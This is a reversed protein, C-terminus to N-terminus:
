RLLGLGTAEAALADRHDPHAVGLLARIREAITRGFLSAIGWETVVYHVDARTTVVGSGQALTPVIRSLTGGKATSPLVIIPRGGASAASGRIFDAQGGFGSFINVGISDADVQGTLDVQLAGNVAVMNSLRAIRAPDNVYEAGHVEVSPNDDVFDYLARTGMVFSCVTKGRKMEKRSNDVAGAEMLSVIGDTLAETHIGLHRHSHLAALCANPTAGIGLQLCDGDRVMSAVHAGIRDSVDNPQPSELELLSRDVHVIGHLADVHVQTRGFTRPMNPNVEAVVHRASRVAEGVVDVSVGLSCWGHRDPPSVQIFAWDLPYPGNFLGPAQHLHVPIMDARGEWVANRVNPGVFLAVHRFSGAHEPSVYPAPGLTFIHFVGVDRLEPGRATLAAVLEDPSAAGSGIFVREGSRVDAVAQAATLVVPAPSTPM